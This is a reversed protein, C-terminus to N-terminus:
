SMGGHPVRDLFPTVHFVYNCGIADSQYDQSPISHAQQSLSSAQRPRVAGSLCIRSSMSGESPTDCNSPRGGPWRVFTGGSKMNEEALFSRSGGTLASARHTKQSNRNGNQRFRAAVAPRICVELM